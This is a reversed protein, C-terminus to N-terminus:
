SMKGIGNCRNVAEEGERERQNRMRVELPQAEVRLLCIRVIM